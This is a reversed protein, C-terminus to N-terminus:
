CQEVGRSTRWAGPAAVDGEDHVRTLAQAHPALDNTRARGRQSQKRAHAYPTRALRAGATRLQERAAPVYSLSGLRAMILFRKLPVSTAAAGSGARRCGSGFLAMVLCMRLTTGGVWPPGQAAM